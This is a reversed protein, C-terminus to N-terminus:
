GNRRMWLCRARALLVAKRKGGVEGVYKIGTFTPRWGARPHDAPAGYAERRRRGVSLRPRQATKGPVPGVAGQAAPLNSPPTSGTTCSSRAPKQTRKAHDRSLFITNPPAAHRAELQRAATRCSRSIRPGKKMPYHAHLIDAGDPILPQSRRRLGQAAAARGRRDEDGGSGEDRAARSDHCSSRTRRARSGARRRRAATRWLRRGPAPSHSAVVVHM